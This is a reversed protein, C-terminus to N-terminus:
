FAPTIRLLPMPGPAGEAFTEPNGRWGLVLDLLEGTAEMAYARQALRAWAYHNPPADLERAILDRYPLAGAQPSYGYGETLGDLWSELLAMATRYRVWRHSDWSLARPGSPPEAFRRVLRDGAAAGRAALALIRPPPMDLKIGGEEETHKVLVVRDRYGPVRIQANDAWNQLTDFAARAFGGLGEIRIWRPQVGMHSADPMWVDRAPDAHPGEGTRFPGLNIAFTPWRPLPADFLHVPFNSAIGGDSFWVRDVPHGPATRDISWLPVMSLLGPFSMSMRAAVVVPLDDAEPLPLRPLSRALTGPDDQPGPPRAHA